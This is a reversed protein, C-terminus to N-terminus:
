KKKGDVDKLSEMITKFKNLRKVIVQAIKMLDDTDLQYTINFYGLDNSIGVTISGDDEIEVDSIEDLTEWMLSPSSEKDDNLGQQDAREKAREKDKEYFQSDIHIYM